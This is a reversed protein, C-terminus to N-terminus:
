FGMEPCDVKKLDGRSVLAGKLKHYSDGYGEMMDDHFQHYKEATHAPFTATDYVLVQGSGLTDDDNGKGPVLVASGKDRSLQHMLPSTTGGPIGIVSRYEGGADQVDERRGTPCLKWFVAAFDAVKSEPVEMSVVEAHGLAGYDAKGMMNHYCVLGGDGTHRGGAYAARSSIDGGQRCLSAMEALAFAHQPWSTAKAVWTILDHPGAAACVWDDTEAHVV